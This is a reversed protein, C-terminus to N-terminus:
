QRSSKILKNDDDSFDTIITEYAIKAGKLFEKQADQDFKENQNIKVGISKYEEDGFGLHLGYEKPLSVDLGISIYKKATEPTISIRKEIKQNELISAIRM